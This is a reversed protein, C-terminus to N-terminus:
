GREAQEEREQKDNSDFATLMTSVASQLRLQLDNRFDEKRNTTVRNMIKDTIEEVIEVRFDDPMAMVKGPEHGILCLLSFLALSEPDFAMEVAHHRMM